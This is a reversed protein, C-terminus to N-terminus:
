EARLCTLTVRLEDIEKLLDQIAKLGGGPIMTGMESSGGRTAFHRIEAEREHTM